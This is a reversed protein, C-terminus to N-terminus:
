SRNTKKNVREIQKKYKEIYETDSKASKNSGFKTKIAIKKQEESLTIKSGKTPTTLRGGLVTQGGQNRNVGMRKDVEALKQQTTLHQYQPSTFISKTIAEAVVFDPHSGQSWPRIPMGRADREEQWATM